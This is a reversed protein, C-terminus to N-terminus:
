RFSIGTRKEVSLVWTSTCGVWDTVAMTGPSYSAERRSSRTFSLSSVAVAGMSSPSTKPVIM